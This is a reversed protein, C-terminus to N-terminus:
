IKIEQVLTPQCQRSTMNAPQRAKGWKGIVVNSVMRVEGLLGGFGAVFTLGINEESEAFWCYTARDHKSAKGVWIHVPDLSSFGIGGWNPSPSTCLIIDNRELLSAVMRTMTLAM